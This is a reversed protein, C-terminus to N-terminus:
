TVARLNRSQPQRHLGRAVGPSCRCPPGYLIDDGPQLTIVEGKRDILFVEVGPRALFHKKFFPRPDAGFGLGPAAFHRM